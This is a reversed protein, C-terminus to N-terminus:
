RNIAGFVRAVRRSWGSRRQTHPHTATPSTTSHKLPRHRDPETARDRRCCAPIAPPTCPSTWSTARSTWVIQVLNAGSSLAAAPGVQIRMVNTTSGTGLQNILDVTSGPHYRGLDVVLDIRQAPALDIHDHAIPAALLGGDTGIQLLGGGGPPPPNLVLRYNRANSANLIRLRHRVRAADFM